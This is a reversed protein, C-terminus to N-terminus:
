SHVELFTLFQTVVGKTLMNSFLKDSNNGHSSQMSCLVNAHKLVKGADAETFLFVGVLDANVPLSRKSSDFQPACLKPLPGHITLTFM